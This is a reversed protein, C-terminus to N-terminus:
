SLMWRSRIVMELVHPIMQAIFAADAALDPKRARVPLEALPFLGLNTSESRM